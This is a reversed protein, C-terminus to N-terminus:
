YDTWSNVTSLSKLSALWGSTCRKCEQATSKSLIESLDDTHSFVGKANWVQCRWLMNFFIRRVEPQRAHSLVDKSLSGSLTRGCTFSRLHASIRTCHLCDCKHVTQVSEHNRKLVMSLGYVLISVTNRLTDVAQDMGVLYQNKTTQWLLATKPWWSFGWNGRMINSSLEVVLHVSLYFYRCKPHTKKPFDLDPKGFRFVSKANKPCIWFRILFGYFGCEPHIRRILYLDLNKLNVIQGNKKPFPNSFLIKSLRNKSFLFHVCWIGYIM